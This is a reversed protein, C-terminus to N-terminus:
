VRKRSTVPGEGGAAIREIAVDIPEYTTSMAGANSHILTKDDVAIAVHTKWFFLDGRKVETDNTLNGVTQQQLDADGPCDYGCALLATQVLGSCDIGANSNGGWLYPTGFFLQAVSALDNFHAKAPRLHNKPVFYGEHTEFFTDQASVIRLRSGFSLPMIEPSKMNASPYLHTGRTAVIHTADVPDSLDTNTIYGVYGDKLAQGFAFGSVTELVRFHDGYLLQRERGGSGAERLLNTVSTNVQTIEGDVYREAALQGQLSTHAVRGNSPTLRRDM